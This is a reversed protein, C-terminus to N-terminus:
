IPWQAKNLSIQVQKMPVREESLESRDSRVSVIRMRIEPM